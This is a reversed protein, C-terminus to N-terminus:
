QIIQIAASDSLNIQGAVIVQDGKQIGSIVEIADGSIKGPTVTTLIAKGDKAVYVKNSSISGVFADVPIMLRGTTDRNGLYATGYMGAKLSNGANEVKLEIPFTLNDTAKPAIFSVKGKWTKNPIVSASVDIEQGKKLVAVDKEDVNVKLKLSSVDVIDFLVGGPSVFSGPEVKRQNIIGAFSAKVYVDTVSIQASKLNSKANAVELKKQQVQQQTVGGSAYANEYRELESLANQYVVDANSVSVNQKDAKIVALVQGARVYDGESVLVSTVRGAIETSIEVEQAPAFIGNVLNEAKINGFEAEKVKVAVFPNKIGVSSAITENGAKNARVVYFIGALAITIIVISIVTRKM